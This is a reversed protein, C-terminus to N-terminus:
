CHESQHLTNASQNLIAPLLCFLTNHPLTSFYMLLLAFTAWSSLREQIDVAAYSSMPQCAVLSPHSKKLFDRGTSGGFVELSSKGCIEVAM